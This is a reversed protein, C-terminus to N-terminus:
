IGLLRKANLSFIKEKESDSILDDLLVGGIYMAPNCTPFDSGFLLRDIGFTDIARRLMGHRFIGYGSLDLYYNESYKMRDIHRMFAKYEGPHAAVFVVDKHAKVMEDMEDEGQSHFNVIMNRKGAESLLASFGRLFLGDM